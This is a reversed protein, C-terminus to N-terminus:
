VRSINQTEKRLHRYDMTMDHGNVKTDIKRQFIESEGLDHNPVNRRLVLLILEDEFDTLRPKDLQDVSHCACPVGSLYLSISHYASDLMIIM